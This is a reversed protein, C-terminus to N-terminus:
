NDKSEKIRSESPACEYEMRLFKYIDPCDTKDFYVPSAVVECVNENDCAERVKNMTNAEDQACNSDTKLGHLSSSRTCTHSNDRGWFANKVKILEYPGDCQLWEKQGECTVTTKKRRKDGPDEDEAVADAAKATPSASASKEAPKDAPKEETVAAKLSGQELKDDKEAVPKADKEATKAAVDEKPKDDTKVPTDADAIAKAQETQLKDAKAKQEATKAPVLKATPAKFVKSRLEGTTQGNTEDNSIVNKNEDDIVKDHQSVTPVKERKDNKGAPKPVSGSGEMHSIQDRLFNQATRTDDVGTGTVDDDGTEAAGENVFFGLPLQESWYREMIETESQGNGMMDRRDRVADYRPQIPTSWVSLACGLVVLLLASRNMKIASVQQYGKSL